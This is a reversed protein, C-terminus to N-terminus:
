NNKVRFTYGGQLVNGALDRVGLVTATLWRGPPIRKAGTIIVGNMQPNYVASRVRVRTEHRLEVTLRVLESRPGHGNEELWDAMVLWSDDAAPRELIAQLFAQEM